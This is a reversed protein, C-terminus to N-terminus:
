NANLAAPTSRRAWFPRDVWRREMGYWALLHALYTARVSALEACYDAAAEHDGSLLRDATEAVALGTYLANFLGQAALPEFALAADGVCIWDEGAPRELWAGHAACYGGQADEWEAAKLIPGLMPLTQARQLLAAPSRGSRASPLDADTHFALVAGGDPLPAAYWWGDAEAEIQTVGDPLDARNARMWGCVLRHDTARRAGHPALLKSARGSADIVLVAEIEVTAGVRDLTMRWGAAKRALRTPRAPALLTAGRAAAVARLRREFRTRDLHWGHGDPDALADREIPAEGGWAGRHAHRPAHGDTLFGEWLGMDALLRRAAGPLSEGIRPRPTAWRDVLLVRRFPALNLATVAGAPGAGVVVADFHEM